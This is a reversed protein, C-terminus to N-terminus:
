ATELNGRLGPGVQLNERNGYFVRSPRGRPLLGAERLPPRASISRSRAATRSIARPRDRAASGSRSFARRRLGMTSGGRRSKRSLREALATGFWALRARSLRHQHARASVKPIATLIDEGTPQGGMSLPEAIMRLSPILRGSSIRLSRHALERPRVRQRSRLLRRCQALGQGRVKARLPMATTSHSM